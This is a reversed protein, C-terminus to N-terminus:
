KNISSNSLSNESMVYRRIGSGINQVNFNVLFGLPKSALRLYSLIQAEHVPEVAHVCKLEV